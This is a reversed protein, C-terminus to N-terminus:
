LLRKYKKDAALKKVVDRVKQAQDKHCILTADDTHVIVLDRVGVTAVLHKKDSLVICNTSDIEVFEGCAVNGDADKEHHRGIAPWDGVDDWDFDGNAVVVNQAKEMIAYDVAIKEMKPYERELARAFTKTGATKQIRGCADWLVPQFQRYADAVARFSWVFMGANWRYDGSSLFEEATKRDPKEVFRRAKWFKTASKNSLEEGVQVYGYGTQPGTPKIGITVLVDQAAALKLADGVVRRYTETDKIYSDAPLVAMVADPDQKGIVAAAVGICPATNRGMPEAIIHKVRPLQKLVLAAQERNTVVVIRADSVLPRIREVTQQIMTKDGVIPLLQKPQRRRSRPWFREGYGGAMVVAWNM